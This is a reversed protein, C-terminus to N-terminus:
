LSRRSRGGHGLGPQDVLGQRASSIQLIRADSASVSSVSSIEESDQPTDGIGRAAQSTEILDVAHSIRGLGRAVDGAFHGLEVQLKVTRRSLCTITTVLHGNSVSLRDLRAATNRERLRAHARDAVMERVLDNISSTLNAMTTNMATLQNDVNAFGQSLTQQLRILNRNMVRM